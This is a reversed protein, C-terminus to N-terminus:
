RRGGPHIGIVAEIEPQLFGESNLRNPEREHEVNEVHQVLGDRPALVAGVNLHEITRIHTEGQIDVVGPDESEAYLKHESRNSSNKKLYSSNKKLYCPSM